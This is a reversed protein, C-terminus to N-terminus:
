WANSKMIQLNKISTNVTSSIHKFWHIGYNTTQSDKSIEDEDVEM